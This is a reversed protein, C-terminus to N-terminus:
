KPECVFFYKKVKLIGEFDNNPMNFGYHFFATFYVICLFSVCLLSSIFFNFNLFLIPIAIFHLSVLPLGAIQSIFSCVVWEVLQVPQQKCRNMCVSNWSPLQNCGHMCLHFVYYLLDVLDLGQKPQNTNGIITAALTPILDQLNAM